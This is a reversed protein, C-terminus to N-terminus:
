QYRQSLGEKLYKDAAEVPIGAQEALTTAEASYEIKTNGAGPDSSVSGAANMTANAAGDKMKQVQNRSELLSDSNVLAYTGVLDRYILDADIKGSDVRGFQEEIGAMQTDDLGYDKRFKEKAKLLQEQRFADMPNPQPEPPTEPKEEIKSEVRNKEKRLATMQSLTNKVDEAALKRFRIQEDPALDDVLASLEEKSVEEKQAKELIEEPSM